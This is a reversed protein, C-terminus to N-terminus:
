RRRRAYAVACLLGLLVLPLAAHPAEGRTVHTYVAGAMIVGLAGTAYIALRPILLALGSVIESAGILARFANSYGWKAFQEAIEPKVFKMVGSLVFLAGLLGIAIWLAVAKTRSIGATEATTDAIHM